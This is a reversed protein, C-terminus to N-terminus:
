TPSVLVGKEVEQIDIRQCSSRLFCYVHTDTHRHVTHTYITYITLSKMPESIHKWSDDKFDKVQSGYPKLKLDPFSHTPVAEM